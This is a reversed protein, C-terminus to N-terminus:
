AAPTITVTISDNIAYCKSKGCCVKFFGQEMGVSNVAVATPLGTQGQFATMFRETIVQTGCNGPLTIVVKAIVPVFVTTGNLTPTGTTYTVTANPQNSSVVCLTQCLNEKYTALLSVSNNTAAAALGVPSLFVM